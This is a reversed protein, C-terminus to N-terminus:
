REKKDGTETRRDRYIHRGMKYYYREGTRPLVRLLHYRYEDSGVKKLRLELELPQQRGAMKKLEESILPDEPHTQLQKNSGGAYNLWQTNHYEIEGDSRTTFAIQPFPNM